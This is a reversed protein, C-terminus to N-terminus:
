NWFQDRRGILYALLREYRGALILDGQQKFTALEKNAFDIARGILPQADPFIECAERGLYDLIKVGDKDTAILGLCSEAM